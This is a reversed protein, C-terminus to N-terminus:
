YGTSRRVKRYLVPLHKKIFNKTRYALYLKYYFARGSLCKELQEAMFYRGINFTNLIAMKDESLELSNAAGFNTTRFYRIGSEKAAEIVRTDYIGEPPAFWEVKRGTLDELSKVSIELENRIEKESLDTLHLHRHSHSGITHGANQMEVIQAKSLHGKKNISDTNIFFLCKLDKLTTLLDYHDTTGDDFTLIFSKGSATRIDEPRIINGHCRLVSVIRKLEDTVISFRDSDPENLVKHLVIIGPM